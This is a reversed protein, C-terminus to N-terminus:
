HKENSIIKKAVFIFMLIFAFEAASLILVSGFDNSYLAELLLMFFSFLNLSAVLFGVCIIKKM